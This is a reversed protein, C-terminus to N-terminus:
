NGGTTRGASGASKKHLLRRVEPYFEKMINSAM